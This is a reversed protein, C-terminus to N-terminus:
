LGLAQLLEVNVAQLMLASAEPQAAEHQANSVLLINPHQAASTAGQLLICGEGRGRGMGHALSSSQKCALQTKM